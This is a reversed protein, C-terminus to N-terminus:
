YQGGFPSPAIKELTREAVNQRQLTFHRQGDRPLDLDRKSRFFFYADGACFRDIGLGMLGKELTLEEKLLQRIFSKLPEFLAVFLPISTHKQKFCPGDPIWQPGVWSKVVKDLPHSKWLSPDDGFINPTPNPAWM